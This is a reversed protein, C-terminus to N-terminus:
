ALVELQVAGGSKSLPPQKTGRLNGHKGAVQSSNSNTQCCGFALDPDKWDACSCSFALAPSAFVLGTFIALSKLLLKMPALGTLFKGETLTTQVFAVDKM